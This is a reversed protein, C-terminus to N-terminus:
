FVINRIQTYRRQCSHPNLKGANRPPVVFCDRVFVSQKGSREERECHRCIGYCKGLIFNEEM